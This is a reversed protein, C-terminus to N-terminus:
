AAFVESILYHTFRAAQWNPLCFLDVWAQALPTTRGYRALLRDPQLVIVETEGAPDPTLVAPEGYVIVTSYNAITNPGLAAITAGFGGLILPAPDEGLAAETEYATGAVQFRVTIDKTLNRRGAWLLLLRGPDDTSIGGKPSLNVAGIEAPKALAGHVTSLPIGLDGALAALNPWRRKNQTASVILHRWVQETKTLM